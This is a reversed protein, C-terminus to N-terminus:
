ARSMRAARAAEAPRSRRPFTSPSGCVHWARSARGGQQRPANAVGCGSARLSARDRDVRELPQGLERPRRGLPELQRLLHHPARRLCEGREGGVARGRAHEVLRVLRLHPRRLDHHTHPGARGAARARARRLSCTWARDWRAASESACAMASSSEANSARTASPEVLELAPPPLLMAKKRESLEPSNTPLSVPTSLVACSASRAVKRWKPWGPTYLDITPLFLIRM